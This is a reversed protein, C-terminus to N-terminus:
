EGSVTFLTGASRGFVEPFYMEWARAPLARFEGAVSARMTYTYEYTGRGLFPAFASVRNDHVQSETWYSYYPKYFLDYVQSIEKTPQEKINPSSAAVSSTKLTTDVAEFGAPLPDELALYSLDTPAIITLKVQVYDGLKASEIARDTPKLTAQDVAFYQRGVIIGKNQPPIKDAPLYYNLYASYYLKGNNSDRTIVLDNATAQVLDKIAVSLRQPQDVNTKDVTGGGVQKGDVTVQYAYSGQLEGTALMYETLGLVSWATEQTTEWHGNQRQVMLWRVANALSANKPNARSLAMIIVATSRTDTNMNWYDVKAEQWHTGTASLIAASTLEAELPQAQQANAKQLVMLLYAKGFNDLNARQDFLNIARSNYNRGIETLTFIVFARENYPSVNGRFTKVDVPKNLYDVLFQEARNM